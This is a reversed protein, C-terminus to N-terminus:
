MIEIMIARTQVTGRGSFRGLLNIPRFTRFELSKAFGHLQPCVICSAFGLCIRPKRGPVIGRVAHTPHAIRSIVSTPSPLPPFRTAM